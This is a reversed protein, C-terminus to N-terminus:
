RRRPWARSQVEAMFETFNFSEVEAIGQLPGALDILQDHVVIAWRPLTGGDLVYKVLKPFITWETWRKGEAGPADPTGPRGTALGWFRLKPFERSASASYLHEEPKIFQWLSEPLAPSSLPWNMQHWLWVMETAVRAMARNIVRYQVQFHGGCVVCRGGTGTQAQDLMMLQLLKLGERATAAKGLLRVAEEIDEPRIRDLVVQIATAIQDRTLGPKAHRTM